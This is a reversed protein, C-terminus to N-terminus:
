RACARARRKRRHAAGAGAAVAAGAHLGRALVHACRLGHSAPTGRVAVARSSLFAISSADFYSRNLPIKPTLEYPVLGDNTVLPDGDASIRAHRVIAPAAIWILPPYDIPADRPRTEAWQRVDDFAPIGRTFSAVPLGPKALAITDARFYWVAQPITPGDGDAGTTIRFDQASYLGFVGLRNAPEVPVAPLPLPATVAATLIRPRAAPM